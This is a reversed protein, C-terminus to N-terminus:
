ETAAPESPPPGPDDDDPDDQPPPEIPIYPGRESPPRWNYPELDPGVRGGSGEPAADADQRVHASYWLVVDQRELMEGSVFRDLHARSDAPDRTCGQDDDIEDGHYAVIWVDGVGYADASGDGAGPVLTYGHPMRISRVRWRRQREPDRPRRVEYRITHWPSLQGPLTPDNFEQVQNSDSAVVDFDLRWYAHHIHPEGTCPNTVASFGLRPRITGDSALRWENVYRHWGAQLQSVILLEDGDVFLAVGRFAGGGEGRELITTPPQQCVRFGAVPEDGEAEFCAEENLWLRHTPGAGRASPREPGAGRESPREPGAGRESPREPGAGRESPREPGEYAVNLVPLHARHLVRVRRYDVTRLEVGSGNVGSSASPRVVLLDWLLEEGRWVRVRAQSDGSGPGCEPGDPVGFERDGEPLGPVDDLVEGDAARVAVVRHRVGKPTVERLGVTVARDVSGDPTARSALPPLPRYTSLEGEDLRRALEPDVRLVERAWAHEEENPLRHRRTPTVSLDPYGLFGDVEM